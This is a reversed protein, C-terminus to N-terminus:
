LLDLSHPSGMSLLGIWPASSSLGVTILSSLERSCCSFLSVRDSPSSGAPDVNSGPFFDGTTAARYSAPPQGPSPRARTNPVRPRPPAYHTYSHRTAWPVRLPMESIDPSRLQVPLSSASVHKGSTPTIQEHSREVGRVRLSSASNSQGKLKGEQQKMNRRQRSATTSSSYKSTPKM